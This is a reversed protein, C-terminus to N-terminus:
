ALQGKFVEAHFADVFEFDFVHGDGYGDVGLAGADVLGAGGLPLLADGVDRDELLLCPLLLPRGPGQVSLVSSGVFWRPGSEKLPYSLSGTGILVAFQVSFRGYDMEWERVRQLVECKQSASSVASNARATRWRYEASGAEGPRM